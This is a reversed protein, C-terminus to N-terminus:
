WTPEGERELEADLRALEEADMLKRRSPPRLRAALRHHCLWAFYDVLTLGQEALWSARAQKLAAPVDMPLDRLSAPM